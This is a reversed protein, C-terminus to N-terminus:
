KGPHTTFTFGDCLWWLCFDPTSSDRLIRLNFRDNSCERIPHQKLSKHSDHLWFAFWHIWGWTFETTIYLHPSILNFSVLFIPLDASTSVCHQMPHYYTTRKGHPLDAASRSPLHRSEWRTKPHFDRIERPKQLCLPCYRPFFQRVTLIHIIVTLLPSHFWMFLRVPRFCPMKNLHKSTTYLCGLHICWRHDQFYHLLNIKLSTIKSSIICEQFWGVSKGM